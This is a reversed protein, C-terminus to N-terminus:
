DMMWYERVGDERTKSRLCKVNRNTTVRNKIDSNSLISKISSAKYAKGDDKVIDRASMWERLHNLTFPEALDGSRVANHIQVILPM